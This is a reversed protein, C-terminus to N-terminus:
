ENYLVWFLVDVVKMFGMNQAHYRKIFKDIVADGRLATYTDTIDCYISSYYDHGYGLGRRHFVSRVNRDYIPYADDNLINAMKSCFSFHFKNGLLPMMEETFAPVSISINSTHKLEELKNFYADKQESKLYQNMVYFTAYKSRFAQDSSVNVCHLREKLELYIQVNKKFAEDYKEAAKDFDSYFTHFRIIANTNIM